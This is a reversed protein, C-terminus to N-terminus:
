QELYFHGKLNYTKGDEGLAKILYYYVGDSLQQGTGHLRGNWGITYDNWSFVERGWRNIVTCYFSLLNKAKMKFEDNMGDNNPTFINPVELESNCDSGMIQVSDRFSCNKEDTFDVFYWDAYLANLSSIITNNSNTWEVSTIHRTSSIDYQIVGNQMGCAADTAFISISSVPAAEIEFELTDLCNNKDSIKLEYSDAQLNEIRSLASIESNNLLLKYDPSGGFIEFKLIGDNLNPCTENEVSTITASFAQPQSFLISDRIQCGNADTLKLKYYKEGSLASLISDKETPLNEWEFSYDTLGGKVSALIEGGNSSECSVSTKFELSLEPFEELVITDKKTCHADSFELYYEGSPLATLETNVINGYNTWKATFPAVGNQPVIKISGNSDGQCEPNKKTLQYDLEIGDPLHINRSTKNGTIKDTVEVFYEGSPLNLLTNSTENNTWLFNYNDNNHTEIKISGTSDKSCFPSTLDAFHVVIDDSYKCIKGDVLGYVATLSYKGPSNVEINETKEGNSWQYETYSDGNMYEGSLTTQEGAILITDQELGYIYNPDNEFKWGECSNGINDSHNFSGAYFDAGGVGKINQMEIFDGMVSGSEKKVLAKSNNSSTFYIHRCNNGRIIFEDLITQTRGGQFTYRKDPSFVLTGFTNDVYVGGDGMMKCYNLTNKGTILLEGKASIYDVINQGTVDGKANMIVTDAHISDWVQGYDYFIVKTFFAKDAIKGRAGFSVTDAYKVGLDSVEGVSEFYINKFGATSTGNIKIDNSSLNTFRVDNFGISDKCNNTMYAPNGTFFFTFDGEGLSFNGNVEWNGALKINSNGPKLATPYDTLSEFSNANLTHNNTKLTGNQLKITQNVSFSDTFEWVGNEGQFIVNNKLVNGASTIQHTEEHNEFIVDGYYRWNM